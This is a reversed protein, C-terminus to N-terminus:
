STAPPAAPRLSRLLAVVGPVDWRAGGEHRLVITGDPAIILTTPTKTLNYAEPYAGAPKYVPFDLKGDEIIFPLEEFNDLAVSVFEVGAGAVEQYLANVTPLEALCSM